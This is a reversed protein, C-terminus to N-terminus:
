HYDVVEIITISTVLDTDVGGDERRPVPNHNPEFILRYPHALDIAYQGMRRGSLSHRRAPPRNPVETLSNARILLTIRRRIIGAMVDGYARRIERESSFVRELRRTRFSIEVCGRWHKM